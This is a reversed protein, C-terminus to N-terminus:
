DHMGSGHRGACSLQAGAHPPLQLLQVDSHTLV